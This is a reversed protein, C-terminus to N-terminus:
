IEKTPLSFPLITVRSGMLSIATHIISTQFSTLFYCNSKSNMFAKITNTPFNVKLVRLGKKQKYM